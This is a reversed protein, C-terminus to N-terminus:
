PSVSGLLSVLSDLDVPKVLHHAFGSDRSKQRFEAHGWGTLAILMVGSADPRRRIEAAAEYGDIGPMGLDLLVVRPRFEPFAKLAATADHTVHVEFGKLRLLIGLSEAADRNDDVVMVRPGPSPTAQRGANHPDELSEGAKEAVLPLRVRFESGTGPGGSLADIRGGHMEVLRKALALGIGLGGQARSNTADIQAFLNFVKPIKEAPIGIGSDKVSVMVHEGERAARVRIRGGAETYKAANNLLNAFVQALRLPDAELWLRETPLSVAVEHRGAEVLPSSTELAARIIAGLEIRERRLEIQGRTIRSVELLDDVLRVMQGVQRELMDHVEAAPAANSAMRLIQLSARIPALPNRLEHALTALFEDKRQDAERLAEESRKIDTIDVSCGVYGLLTGDETLRPVGKSKVWRYVGDSRRFRAQTEFPRPEAAARAYETLYGELDEPHVLAQWQSGSLEELTRGAFWLFERNVFECGDLDHVWILVPATDALSRFRAESERLALEAQKYETIDIAMGGVLSSAGNTSPIPFKSVLSHHLGDLHGLTEVTEIGNGALLARLDNERFQRATAEPFLARDDKGYLQETTRNFARQAANNAFLYRGAEDKIWALGPLHEMFRAFRDQSDRLARETAKLDSINVLVNVAGLLGGGEDWLPCAHALVTLRTGDPREVIIEEAEYAARNRLALAM